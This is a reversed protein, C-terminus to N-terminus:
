IESCESAAEISGPSCSWGEDVSCKTCGDDDVDNGDDCYGEKPIVM